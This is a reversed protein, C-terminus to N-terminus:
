RLLKLVVAWYARLVARLPRSRGARGLYPSALDPTLLRAFDRSALARRSQIAQRERLLRPLARLTDGAAQRKPGVWGSAVAIPWLALETALLAPFVAALLPTPYTRLITAWRNRELARWKHAGKGFEYDHDVRAAPEVGVRGGWLLLRLSLEVDECYMFFHDAFGGAREWEPRPVALCAGSAFAVERSPAAAAVPAGAEGAWAIGTFHVVGGSTNVVTGREATVLGMWAAWGRGDALPRRIAAAFGDAVVADPNLFVLLDGTALGAGANAGAAFGANRENAVIRAQPALERVAAATGDTSANDVVILEDAPELQAVLPPVSLRIADRSNFTVVVVSLNIRGSL